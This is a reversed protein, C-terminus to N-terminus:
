PKVRTWESVFIRRRLNCQDEQVTLQFNGKETMKITYNGIYTKCTPSESSVFTVQKGEFKIQGRDVPRTDLKDVDWAIRYTGDGSFKLVMYIAMPVDQKWIGILDKSKVATDECQSNGIALFTMLFITMFLILSKLWM